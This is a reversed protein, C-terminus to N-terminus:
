VAKLIRTRTKPSCWCEDKKSINRPIANSPWKTWCICSILSQLHSLPLSDAQWHLLFHLSLLLQETTDSEKHGWSSYLGHFEGPWFVPTPLRERRRPIKGAWPDFWTEQMAPPNKVLQTALSARRHLLCPNLGQTPFIGWLLFHCGVGTNKGPFDWPCLRRAPHLGYPQLITLCSKAVLCCCLVFIASKKRLM